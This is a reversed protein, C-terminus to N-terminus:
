SMSRGSMDERVELAGVDGERIEKLETSLDHLQVRIVGHCFSALEKRQLTDWRFARTLLHSNYRFLRTPKTVKM